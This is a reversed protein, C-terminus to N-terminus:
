RHILVEPNVINPPRNGRLALVLNEACMVAMKSRTAFSASGIHPVLVVNPLRLLPSTSPLPETAFVDLGAAHLRGSSLASVLANEDVVAGRSTNVFVAGKKMSAFEEAGIMNKTENTLPVHVTIIDSERLLSAFDTRAAGTEKEVSRTFDNEQTDSYLIRMGFGKARQAVAAGIRGMGVIGLTASYIDIGLMLMPGWAVHWLGARVYRDAEAIRRSAAMILAWALDATTETLVGPTNTVIVGRKTATTVDINDFGVAYQAIVRLKPLSGIVSEDIKDSLLSVLASCRKARAVMEESSPPMDASWVSTRFNRKIIDLGEDPILRTVFVSDTM